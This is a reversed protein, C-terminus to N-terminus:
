FSQPLSIICPQLYAWLFISAHDPSEPKSTRIFLSLYPIPGVLTLYQLLFAAIWWLPCAGEGKRKGCITGTRGDDCPEDERNFRAHEAWETAYRCPPLRRDEDEKRKHSKDKEMLFRRLFILWLWIFRQCTPGCIHGSEWSTVPNM